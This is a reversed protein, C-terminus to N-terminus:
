YCVLKANNVTEALKKNYQDKLVEHLTTVCRTRRITMLSDRCESGTCTACGVTPWVNQIRLHQGQYAEIIVADRVIRHDSFGLMDKLQDVESNLRKRIDTSQEKDLICIPYTEVM